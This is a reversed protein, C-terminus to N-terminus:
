RTQSASGKSTRKDLLGQMAGVLLGGLHAYNAIQAGLVGAFGLVVWVLMFGIYAPPIALEPYRKQSVAVYGLLAYVAGSLGLFNPGVLVGQLLNSLLAGAVFLLLLTGSGVVREIRGGLFWWWVLNFLLHIPEFHMVAPTWFRWIQPWQEALPSPYHLWSFLLQGMGLMNCGGLFLSVFLVFLTVPGAQVWIQHLLPFASAGYDFRAPSTDVRQWSAQFYRRHTPDKAFESFEHRTKDALEEQCAILFNDDEPQIHCSVGQVAMYDVFAQAMRPDNIGGIVKM